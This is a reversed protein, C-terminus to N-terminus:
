RLSDPICGHPIGIGGPVGSEDSITPSISAHIAAPAFSSQPVALPREPCLGTRLSQAAFASCIHKVLLSGNGINWVEGARLVWM